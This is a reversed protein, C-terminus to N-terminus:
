INLKVCINRRIPALGTSASAWPKSNLPQL